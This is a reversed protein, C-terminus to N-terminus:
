GLAPTFLAYFISQTTRKLPSSPASGLINFRVIIDRAGQHRSVFLEPTLNLHNGESGYNSKSVLERSRM